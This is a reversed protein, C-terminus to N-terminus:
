EKIFLRELIWNREGGGVWVFDDPFNGIRNHVLAMVPLDRLTFVGLSNEARFRVQEEVYRFTAEASGSTRAMKDLEWMKVLEPPPDAVLAPTQHGPYMPGEYTDTFPVVVSGTGWVLGHSQGDTFKPIVTSRGQIKLRADIGIDRWYTVILQGLKTHPTIESAADLIYVVDKGNPYERIGDGDSDKLGLGDLLRRAAEPDYQANMRSAAEIRENWFPSKESLHTSSPIGFGLYLTESVDERNIALNLANRFEKTRLMERLELYDPDQLDYPIWVEQGFTFSSGAIMRVNYNGKEENEKLLPFNWLAQFNRGGIDIEGAVAKLVAAEQDPLMTFVARDIYPLQNGAQDVRWYYPNREFVAETTIDYKVIRWPALTPMDPNTHEEARQLEEWTSSSNYDPHITKLYHAPKVFWVQVIGNTFFFPQPVPFEWVVTHDDTKYFEIPAENHIEVGGWYPQARANPNNEIEHWLFLLDEATFPHGDSWKVGKRLQVTLKTADDNFQWSEALGPLMGYQLGNGKESAMDPSFQAFVNFLVSNIHHWKDPAGLQFFRLTGGYRGIEESQIVQPNEPLREAMPPLEGAAVMEVLMPVEGYPERAAASQEETQVGSSWAYTGILLWIAVSLVVTVIRRM